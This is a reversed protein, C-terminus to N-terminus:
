VVVKSKQWTWRHSYKILYFLKLIPWSLALRLKFRVWFNPLVLAVKKSNDSNDKVAVVRIHHRPLGEAKQNLLEEQSKGEDVEFVAIRFGASGIMSRLTEPIFMYPHDIQVGASISGARRAQHRFNKVALFLSGGDILTQYAWTMFGKPDLLHNLSQVCFINVPAEPLNDRFNEFLITKTPVGHNRALESEAVSPEIGLIKLTPIVERLGCLVGGTSSGVDVTLGPKFFEQYRRGLAQGFKRANEFNKELETDATTGKITNRDVRYFYKYYNDYEEGIMRPNIYILSCNRCMVTAVPLNNKSKRAIVSFDNRGCLNCSIEEKKTKSYDFM